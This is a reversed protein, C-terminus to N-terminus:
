LGCSSARVVVLFNVDLLGCCRWLQSSCCSCCYVDAFVSGTDCLQLVVKRGVILVPNMQARAGTHVPIAHICRCLIPFGVVGACSIVIMFYSGVRRREGLPEEGNRGTCLEYKRVTAGSFRWRFWDLSVIRPLKRLYIYLSVFGAGAHM